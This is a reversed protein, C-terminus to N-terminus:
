RTYSNFLQLLNLRHQESPAIVVDTNRINHIWHIHKDGIGEVSHGGFRNNVRLKRFIFNM